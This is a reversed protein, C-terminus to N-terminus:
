LEGSCPCSQRAARPCRHGTRAVATARLSADALRPAPRRKGRHLPRRGRGEGRGAAGLRAKYGPHQARQARQTLPPLNRTSRSSRHASPAVHRRARPRLPAPPRWVCRNYSGLSSHSAFSSAGLSEAGSVDSSDASSTHGHPNRMAFM